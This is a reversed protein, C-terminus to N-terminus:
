IRPEREGVRTGIHTNKLQNFMQHHKLQHEKITGGYYRKIWTGCPTKPKDGRATTKSLFIHFEDEENQFSSSYDM